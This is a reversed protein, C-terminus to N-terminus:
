LFLGKDPMKGGLFKPNFQYIEEFFAMIESQLENAKTVTLNAKDFANALAVEPAPLYSSGIKAASQKNELIWSLANKLDSHLTDFLNLSKEYFSKEVIIGAMPIIPKTSFSEGWIKPFDVSYHVSVGAKKGRLITAEGLPQPVLLIDFDKQLFLLLAEPPTATYTIDIKSADIGRKKCLARLVLDPMDGRFPMVLKKGVFDELNKIKEDKVMANMVGLTLLNLMAFDLGQNRLNAAVNSPSMTVKIDGSAVGARLQDPTKWINLSVDYTKNLEGQLAAVAMIVSPIAPAGWMNFSEKAFLNPAFASVGLATSLGLFKRRDLM